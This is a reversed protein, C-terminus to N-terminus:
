LEPPKRLQKKQANQKKSELRKKRSALTPASKLRKKPIILSKGVMEFFLQTVRDRNGSQSREAQSVLILEGESNMRNQLKRAIRSKEEETFAASNWVNFRLEVRTSVKNVNQGGPGSSRTAAFQLEAELIKQLEETFQM